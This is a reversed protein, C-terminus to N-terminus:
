ESRSIPGDHAIRRHTRTHHAKKHTHTHPRTRGERTNSAMTTSASQQQQQQNNNNDHKTFQTPRTCAQEMMLAVKTPHHPLIRLTGATKKCLLEHHKRRTHLQHATGYFAQVVHGFTLLFQGAGRIGHLKCCYFEIMKAGLQIAIPCLTSMNPTHFSVCVSEREIGGESM